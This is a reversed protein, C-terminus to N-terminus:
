WSQCFDKDGGMLGLRGGTLDLGDVAPGRIGVLEGVAEWAGNGRDSNEIGTAKGGSGRERLHLSVTLGLELM